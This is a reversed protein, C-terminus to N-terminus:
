PVDCPERRRKEHEIKKAETQGIQNKTRTHRPEDGVLKYATYRIEGYPNTNNMPEFEVGARRTLTCTPLRKKCGEATLRKWRTHVLDCFAHLTPNGTM